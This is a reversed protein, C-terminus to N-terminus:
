DNETSLLKVERTTMSSITKMTQTINRTETSLFPMNKYNTITYVSITTINPPNFQILTVRVM